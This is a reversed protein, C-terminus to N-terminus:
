IQVRKRDIIFPNCITLTTTVQTEVMQTVAASFLYGIVAM